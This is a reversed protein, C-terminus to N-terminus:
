GITERIIGCVFGSDGYTDFLISRVQEEPWDRMLGKAWGLAVARKQDDGAQAEKVAVEADAHMLKVVTYFYAVPKGIEEGRELRRVVSEFAARAVSLDYGELFTAIGKRQRPAEFTDAIFSALEQFNEVHAESLNDVIGPNEVDSSGQTSPVRSDASDATLLGNIASSPLGVRPRGKGKSKKSNPEESEQEEGQPNQATKIQSDQATKTQAKEMLDVDPRWDAMYRELKERPIRTIIWINTRGQGRRRVRVLGVEILKQLHRSITSVTSNRARALTQEGVFTEPGVFAFSKLLIYTMKEGDSLEPYCRLVANNVQTFGTAQELDEYQVLPERDIEQNPELERSDIRSLGKSHFM